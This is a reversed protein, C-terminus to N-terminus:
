KTKAYAMIKDIVEDSPEKMLLDLEKKLAEYFFPDTEEFLEANPQDSKTHFHHTKYTTTFTTIMLM